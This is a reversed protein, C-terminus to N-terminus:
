KALAQLQELTKSADLYDSIKGVVYKKAGLKEALFGAKINARVKGGDVTVTGSFKVGKVKGAVTATPGSWSMEIGHRVRWYDALAKLRALGEEDDFDYTREFEM